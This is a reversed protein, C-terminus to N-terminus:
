KGYYVKAFKGAGVTEILEFEDNINGKV